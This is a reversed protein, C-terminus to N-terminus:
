NLPSMTINASICVRPTRGEYTHVFHQLWGPFVVLVGTRPRILITSPAELGPVPRNSRRPDVLALAGSRPHAETPPDGADPYYAMSWHADGHEHLETYHGRHMVMAWALVSWRMSDLWQPDPAPQQNAHAQEVAQSHVVHGVYSVLVQMLCVLGPDSRQALDPPSHWGGVNSRRLGGGANSETLLQSALAANHEKMAPVEFVHVPTAFLRLTDM